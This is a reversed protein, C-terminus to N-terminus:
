CWRRRGGRARDYFWLICDPHECKKVLSFDAEVLFRAVSEALPGLVAATGEGVSVRTLVLKGDTDHTLHPTTHHDHLFDNLRAVDPDASSEARDVLLRRAVARLARARALLEDPDMGDARTASAPGLGAHRLWAIVDQGNRWLDVTEGRPSRALTNILDLAPHEGIFPAAPGNS